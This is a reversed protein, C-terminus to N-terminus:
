EMVADSSSPSAVELRNDVTIIGPCKAAMRELLYKEDRTAVHGDLQVAGDNVTIVVAGLDVGSQGFADLVAHRLSDDPPVQGRAPRREQENHRQGHAGARGYQRARGAGRQDFGVDQTQKDHGKPLPEGQWHAPSLTDRNDREDTTADDPDKGLKDNNQQM